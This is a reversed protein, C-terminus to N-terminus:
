SSPNLRDVQKRPTDSMLLLRQKKFAYVRLYTSHSDGPKFPVKAEPGYAEKPRTM